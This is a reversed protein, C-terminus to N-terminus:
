RMHRPDGYHRGYQNGYDGYQPYEGGSVTPPHYEGVTWPERHDGPVSPDWRDPEWQERDWQDRSHAGTRQREGREERGRRYAEAQGRLAPLRDEFGNLWGEWRRQMPQVLGGGVGVVLIGGITALVSILVPTTVTTAIGIQNLAAIIGLGWVFVSAIRGIFVGYDLGGLMDGVVEGVAHAIAGAVVIIAIAVAARPLWAVVGDILNAVPNPGFVGFALQLAILTIAYFTLKAPLDSAKYRSKALIRKVGGRDALRDFGVRALVTGVIKAAMRAVLWGVLLIVLFGVLEPVFTAVASWADSFGQRFDIALSPTYVTETARGESGSRGACKGSGSEPGNYM